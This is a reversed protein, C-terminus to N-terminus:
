GAGPPGIYSALVQCYYCKGSKSIAYGSGMVNRTRSLMNIRDRKSNAWLVFAANHRDNLRDHSALSVAWGYFGLAQMRQAFGSDLNTSKEDKEAMLTAYRQAIEDLKPHRGMERVGNEKRLTNTLRLMDSSKRLSKIPRQADAVNALGAGVAVAVLATTVFRKM